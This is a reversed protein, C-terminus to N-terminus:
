GADRVLRGSVVRKTKRNVADMWLDRATFRAAILALVGLAPYFRAIWFQGAFEVLLAMASWAMAIWLWVLARGILGRHQCFRWLVWSLAVPALRTVVWFSEQFAIWGQLQRGGDPALWNALVVLCAVGFLLAFVARLLGPLFGNPTPACILVSVALLAYGALGLGDVLIDLLKSSSARGEATISGAGLGVGVLVLLLGCGLIELGFRTSELRILDLGIPRGSPSVEIEEIERPDIQAM